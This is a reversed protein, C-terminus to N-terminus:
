WVHWVVHIFDDIRQKQNQVNMNPLLIMKPFLLQTQNYHFRWTIFISQETEIVM